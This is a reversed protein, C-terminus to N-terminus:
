SELFITAAALASISANMDGQPSSSDPFVGVELVFQIAICNPIHEITTPQPLFTSVAPSQVYRVIGASASWETSWPAIQLEGRSFDYGWYSLDSISATIQASVQSEPVFVLLSASTGSSSGGSGENTGLWFTSFTRLYVDQIM